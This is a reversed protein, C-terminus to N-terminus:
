NKSRVLIRKVRDEQLPEGEKRTKASRSKEWLRRALLSTLRRERVLLIGLTASALIAIAAVTALITGPLTAPADAAALAPRTTEIQFLGSWRENNAEFWLQTHTENEHSAGCDGTTGQGDADLLTGHGGSCTLHDGAETVITYSALRGDLLLWTANAQQAPEQPPHPEPDDTPTPGAWDGSGTIWVGGEGENEDAMASAGTVLVFSVLLLTMPLAKDPTGPKRPLTSPVHPLLSRATRM